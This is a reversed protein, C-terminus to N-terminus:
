RCKISGLHENGHNCSGGGVRLVEYELDSRTLGHGWGM